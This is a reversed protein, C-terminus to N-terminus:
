KEYGSYPVLHVKNPSNRYAVHHMMRAAYPNRSHITLVQPWDKSEELFRIVDMGSLGDPGNLAYPAGGLDHDLSAHTVGGQKLLTIADSATTVWVWGKPAARTDDLWLKM